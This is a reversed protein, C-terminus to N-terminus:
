KDVHCKGRFRYFFHLLFRKPGSSDQTLRHTFFNASTLPADQPKAYSGNFLHVLTSGAFSFFIHVLTCSSNWFDFNPLFFVVGRCPLSLGQLATVPKVLFSSRATSTLWAWHKHAIDTGRMLLFFFPVPDYLHSYFTYFPCSLYWYGLVTPSWRVVSDFHDHMSAWKHVIYVITSYWLFYMCSNFRVCPCWNYWWCRYTTRNVWSLGSFLCLFSACCSIGPWCCSGREAGVSGCCWSGGMVM